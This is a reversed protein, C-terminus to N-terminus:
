GLVHVKGTPTCLSVQALGDVLGDDGHRTLTSIVATGQTQTGSLEVGLRCM